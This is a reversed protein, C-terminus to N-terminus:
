AGNVFCECLFYPDINEAAIFAYEVISFFTICEGLQIFNLIANIKQMSAQLANFDHATIVPVICPNRCVRGWVWTQVSTRVKLATCVPRINSPMARDLLFTPGHTRYSTWCFSSMQSADTSPAHSFFTQRNADSWCEWGSVNCQQYLLEECAGWNKKTGGAPCASPQDIDVGSICLPWLCWEKRHATPHSGVAQWGVAMWRNKASRIKM